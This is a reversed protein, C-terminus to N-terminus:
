VAETKIQCREIVLKARRSPNKTLFGNPRGNQYPIPKSFQDATPDVVTSNKKIFWHTEGDNLVEPWSAHSLVYPTWGSSKAGLIHYCAEAGVYCQGSLPHSTRLKKWKSSLLDETLNKQVMKVIKKVPLKNM